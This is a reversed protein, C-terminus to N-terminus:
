RTIQFTIQLFMCHFFVWLFLCCPETSYQTGSETSSQSFPRKRWPWLTALATSLIPSPRFPKFARYRFFIRRKGKPVCTLNWSTHQASLAISHPRARVQYMVKLEISLRKQGWTYSEIEHARTYVRFSKSFQYSLHLPFHCNQLRVDEYFTHLCCFTGHPCSATWTIRGKLVPFCLNRYNYWKEGVKCSSQCVEVLFWCTAGGRPCWYCQFTFAGLM